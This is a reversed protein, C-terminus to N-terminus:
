MCDFMETADQSLVTHLVSSDCLCTINTHVSKPKLDEEHNNNVISCM